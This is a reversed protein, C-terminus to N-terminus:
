PRDRPAGDAYSGERSAEYEDIWNDQKVYFMVTGNGQIPGYHRVDAKRSSTLIPDFVWREDGDM